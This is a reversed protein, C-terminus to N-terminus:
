VAEEAAPGQLDPRQETQIVNTQGLSGPSMGPPATVPRAGQGARGRPAMPGGAAGAAERTRQMIHQEALVRMGAAAMRNGTLRLLTNAQNEQQRISVDHAALWAALGQGGQTPMDALIAAMDHANVGHGVVRGAAAIVEQPDVTDGKMTLQDMERRMHDLMNRAKSVQDFLAKAYQHQAQLETAQGRGAGMPPSRNDPALDGPASMGNRGGSTADPIQLPQPRDQSPTNVTNGAGGMMGTLSNGLPGSGM